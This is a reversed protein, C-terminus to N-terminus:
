VRFGSRNRMTAISEAVVLLNFLRMSVPGFPEFTKLKLM